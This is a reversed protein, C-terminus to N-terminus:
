ERLGEWDMEESAPSIIDGVIKGRSRFTGLWKKKPSSPPPPSILAIPKGHRTVIMPEGTRKVKDLVALCTAKFKSITIMNDPQM